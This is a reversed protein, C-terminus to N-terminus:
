DKDLWKMALQEELDLIGLLIADIHFWSLEIHHTLRKPLSDTDVSLKPHWCSNYFPLVQACEELFEWKVFFYQKRHVCKVM